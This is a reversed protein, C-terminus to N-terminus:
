PGLWGMETKMFGQRDAWLVAMSGDVSHLLGSLRWIEQNAERKGPFM